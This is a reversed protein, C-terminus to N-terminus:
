KLGAKRSADILNNTISQDKWISTKAIYDLSFKPNIRLVEAAEARAENERGLFIYAVALGHHAFINNPSRQIAKKYASVAEDFRGTVRYAHGLNHFLSSEGLPNLRLAMQFVPIAEDARGGYMLSMGYQNLRVSSGPELALAREAEAISKEYERKLTYFLSMYSHAAPLSDDMALAKQALELGNEISERPSKGLGLWYEMYNVWSLLLITVPNEPCMENAEEAMRRGVRTEDANYGILHSLGELVKLYCDLGKKGKFYKEHFSVQEGWTLKVQLATLIKMTIDDQLAFLDV